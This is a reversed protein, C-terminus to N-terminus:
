TRASAAIAQAKKFIAVHEENPYSESSLLTRLGSSLQSWFVVTAKGCSSDTAGAVGGTAIQKEYRFLAALGEVSLAIHAVETPTAETAPQQTSPQMLNIKRDLESLLVDTRNTDIRLVNILFAEVEEDTRFDVSDLLDFPQGYSAVILMENQHQRAKRERLLATLEPPIYHRMATQVSHGLARSVQHWDGESEIYAVVSHTNRISSFTVSHLDALDDHSKMLQRLLKGTSSTGKLPRPISAYTDSKLGIFLSHCPRGQIKSLEDRYRETREELFKLASRTESDLTASKIAHARRKDVSIRDIGNNIPTIDKVSLRLVPDLNSIEKCKCFLLLIFTILNRHTIVGFHNQIQEVPYHRIIDLEKYQFRGSSSAYNRPIYGNYHKRVWWILNNIGKEYSPSFIHLSDSRWHSIAKREVGDKTVTARRNTLQKKSEITFSEPPDGPSLKELIQVDADKVLSTGIAYNTILRGIESLALKELRQINNELQTKLAAVGDHTTLSLTETAAIKNFFDGSKKRPHLGVINIDSDESYDRPAANRQKPFAFWEWAPLIKSNQCFKIFDGQNTWHRRLTELNSKQIAPNKTFFWELYILHLEDLEEPDTLDYDSININNDRICLGWRQIQHAYVHTPYARTKSFSEMASKIRHAFEQGFALLASMNASFTREGDKNTLLAIVTTADAVPKRLNM